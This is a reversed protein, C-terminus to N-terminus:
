KPGFYRLFLIKPIFNLKYALYGLYSFNKFYSLYTKYNKYNKAKARMVNEFEKNSLDIKDLIELVILLLPMLIREAMAREIGSWFPLKIKSISTFSKESSKFVIEPISDISSTIETWRAYIFVM